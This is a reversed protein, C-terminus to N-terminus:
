PDQSGAAPSISSWSIVLDMLEKARQANPWLGHRLLDAITQSTSAVSRIILVSRPVQVNALRRVRERPRHTLGIQGTEFCGCHDRIAQKDLWLGVPCDILGRWPYSYLSAKVFKQVSDIPMRPINCEDFYGVTWELEQMLEPGKFLTAWGEDASIYQDRRFLPFSAV